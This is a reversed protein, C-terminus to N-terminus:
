CICPELDLSHNHIPCFRPASQRRQASHRSAFLGLCVALVRRATSLGAWLHSSRLRVPRRRNSASEPNAMFTRAKSLANGTPLSARVRLQDRPLMPTIEFCRARVARRGHWLYALAWSCSGALGFAHLLRPSRFIAAACSRPSNENGRGARWPLRGEVYKPRRAGGGRPRVPHLRSLYCLVGRRSGDGFHTRLSTAAGDSGLNIVLANEKLRQETLSCFVQQGSCRDRFRGATSM